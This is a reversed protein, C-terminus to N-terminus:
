KKSKAASNVSKTVASGAVASDGNGCHAPYAVFSFDHSILVNIHVTARNVKGSVGYVAQQELVWVEVVIEIDEFANGCDNKSCIAATFCGIV